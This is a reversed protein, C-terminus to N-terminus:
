DNLIDLFTRFVSTDQKIQDKLDDLVEFFLFAQGLRQPLINFGNNHSVWHFFQSVM